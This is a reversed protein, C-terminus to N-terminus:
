AMCHDWLSVWEILVQEVPSTLLFQGNPLRLVQLTRSAVPLGSVCLLSLRLLEPSVGLSILSELPVSAWCVMDNTFKIGSLNLKLILLVLFGAEM